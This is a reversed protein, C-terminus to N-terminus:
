VHVLVANLAIDLGASVVRLTFTGRILNFDAAVLAYLRAAIMFRQAPCELLFLLQGSCAPAIRVRDKRKNGGDTLGSRQKQPADPREEARKNEAPRLSLSGRWEPM